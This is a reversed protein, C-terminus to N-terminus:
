DRKVPAPLADGSPQSVAQTAFNRQSHAQVLQVIARAFPRHEASINKLLTSCGQEDGVVLVVPEDTGCLRSVLRSARVAVDATSSSGAAYVGLRAVAAQQQIARELLTHRFHLQQNAIALQQNVETLENAATQANLWATRNSADIAVVYAAWSPISTIVFVIVIYEPVVYPETSFGLISRLESPWTFGTPIAVALAFISALAGRTGLLGGATIVSALMLVATPGGISETAALSLTGAGILGGTHVATAMLHAQRRWLWYGLGAGAVGVVVSLHVSIPANNLVAAVFLATAVM